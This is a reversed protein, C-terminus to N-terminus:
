IAAPHDIIQNGKRDRLAQACPHSRVLLARTRMSRSLSLAAVNCSTALRPFIGQRGIPSSLRASCVQPRWSWNWGWTWQTTGAPPSRISARRQHWGLVGSKKRGRCITSAARKRVRSLAAKAPQAPRWGSQRPPTAGFSPPRHAVRPFRHPLWRRGKPRRRRDCRRQTRLADKFVLVALDGEAVFITLVLLPVVQGHGSLFNM